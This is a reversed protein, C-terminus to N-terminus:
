NLETRVEGGSSGGVIRHFHYPNRSRGYVNNNSEWWMALESVNTVALMIGGAEKM